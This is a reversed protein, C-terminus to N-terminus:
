NPDAYLLMARLVEADKRTNKIAETMEDHVLHTLHLLSTLHLAEQASQAVPIAVERALM